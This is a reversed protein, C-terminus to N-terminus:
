SWFISASSAGGGAPLCSVGELPHKPPKESTKFTKLKKLKEFNQLFDKLFDEILIQIKHVGGIFKNARNAIWHGASGTGSGPRAGTQHGRGPSFSSSSYHLSSLTM